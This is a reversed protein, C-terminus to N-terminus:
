RQAYKGQAPRISAEISQWEQKVHNSLREHLEVPIPSDVVNMKALATREDVSFHKDLSKISKLYDISAQADDVGYGFLIPFECKRFPMGIKNKKAQAVVEVGVAMKAGRVQKEIRKKHALWLVQSAYFDLARGGSRSHQNGFTVGVNARVQSVVILLINKEALPRVLQGFMKSAAKAKAMGYSGKDFERELEASDSLADYSDIIYLGPSGAPVKEVFDMIHQFLGEITDCDVVMDVGDIPIGLSRAYDEDFAAETENYVIPADPFKRHFNAVAEIALLTKGTSKDGVINTFRGLPYGGGLVLDLITCGSSLIGDLAPPFYDGGAKTAVKVRETPSM